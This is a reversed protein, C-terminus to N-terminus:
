YKRINQVASTADELDIRVVYVEYEFTPQTSGLSYGSVNFKPEAHVMEKYHSPISYDAFASLIQDLVHQSPGSWIRVSASRAEAETAVLGVRCENCDTFGERFECQCLRCFM